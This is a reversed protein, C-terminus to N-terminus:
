SEDFFFLPIEEAPIDLLECWAAIDKQSFNIKENLKLSVTQKTLDAADAFATYSGYKEVIRGRLKNYNIGM